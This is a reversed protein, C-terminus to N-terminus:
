RSRSLPEGLAIVGLRLVPGHGWEYDRLTREAEFAQDTLHWRLWARVFRLFSRMWRLQTRPRLSFVPRPMSPASPVAPPITMVSLEIKKTVLSGFLGLAMPVESCSSALVESTNMTVGDVCIRDIVFRDVDGEMLLGRVMMPERMLLSCWQCGKTMRVSSVAVMQRHTAPPAQTRLFRDSSRSFDPGSM